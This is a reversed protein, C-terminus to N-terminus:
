RRVDEVGASFHPLEEFKWRKVTVAIRADPLFLAKLSDVLSPEDVVPDDPDVDDDHIEVVRIVASNPLPTTTLLADSVVVDPTLTSLVGSRIWATLGSHFLGVLLRNTTNQLLTPPPLLVRSNFSGIPSDTSGYTM